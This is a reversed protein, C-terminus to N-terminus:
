PTTTAPPTAGPPAPGTTPPPAGPAPSTQQPVPSTQEAPPGTPTTETDPPEAPATTTSPTTTSTTDEPSTTTSTTDQKDESDKKTDSTSRSVPIYTTRKASSVVSKGLVLESSTLLVGALVFAVIGTAVAALVRPRPLRLLGPRASATHVRRQAAAAAPMVPRAAELDGERLGRRGEAVPDFRATRTERVTDIVRAPRKLAESVLAVIVPTAGAGILTGPGWIKSVLVAAALSSASAIMLTTVSLGSDAQKRDSSV